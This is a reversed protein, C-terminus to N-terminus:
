KKYKIVKGGSFASGTGIGFAGTAVVRRLVLWWM